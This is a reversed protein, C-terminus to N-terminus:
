IEGTDVGGVTGMEKVGGNLRQAKRTPFFSCVLLRPVLFILLAVVMLLLLVFPGLRLNCSIIKEQHSSM